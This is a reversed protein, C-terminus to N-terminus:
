RGKVMYNIIEGKRKMIRIIIKNIHSFFFLILPYINVNIINIKWIKHGLLPHIAIGKIFNISLACTFFAYWFDTRHRWGSLSWCLPAVGKCLYMASFAKAARWTFCSDLKSYSIIIVPWAKVKRRQEFSVNRSSTKNFSKPNYNITNHRTTKLISPNREAGLHRMGIFICASNSFFHSIRLTWFIKSCDNSLKRQEVSIEIRRCAYTIIISPPKRNYFNFDQM